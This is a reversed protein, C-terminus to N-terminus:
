SRRDQSRRMAHQRKMAREHIGDRTASTVVEAQGFHGALARITPFRFLDIVHVERDFLPKIRAHVRMVLLSNGGLDFFNDDVGVREAKLAEQWVSALQQELDNGPAVYAVSVQSERGPVPLANRDVKGNPTLPLKKLGVFGSPVMYEPLRERLEARLREVLEAEDGEAVVYAVLRRDGPSDERVVAVAQSVGAVRGLVTEIEGLEIRFGRLKVQNDLRGVYEIDGEPLYRARDGTRYLRAGSAGDFLDAVFKEADLEARRWYGRAVGAGGIYLEGYVGVPV